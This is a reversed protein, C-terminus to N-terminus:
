CGSAKAGPSRCRAASRAPPSRRTSPTSRRRRSRIRRRHQPLRRLGDHAARGARAARADRGRRRVGEGTRARRHGQRVSDDAAGRRDRRVRHAIRPIPTGTFRAARRRRSGPGGVHMQLVTMTETNAEDDAYERIVRIRDGVGREPWHCNGCTEGSRRAADRRAPPIPRPYRGTVVHYLQRVGALKAHVFGRAGEGIHCDVCAVRAHPAAQWATFQPHM